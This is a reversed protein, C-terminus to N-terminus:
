TKTCLMMLHIIYHTYTVLKNNESLNHLLLTNKELELLFRLISKYISWKLHKIYVLMIAACRECNLKTKGFWNSVFM